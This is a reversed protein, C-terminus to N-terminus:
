PPCWICRFLRRRSRRQVFGLGPSEAVLDHKFAGVAGRREHDPQGLLVAIAGPLKELYETDIRFPELIRAVDLVLEAEVDLAALNGESRLVLLVVAPAAHLDDPDALLRIRVQRPAGGSKEAAGDAVILEGALSKANQRHAVELIKEYLWM